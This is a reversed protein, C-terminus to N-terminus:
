ATLSEQTEKNDADLITLLQQALEKYSFTQIAYATNIEVRTERTLLDLIIDYAVDPVINIGLNNEELFSSFKGSESISIIPKRAPLYDFFKSIFAYTYYPILFLLLYDFQAFVKGLSKSNVPSFFTICTLENKKIIESIESNVTGLICFNIKSYLTINQKKLKVLANFFPIAYSNSDTVLSGAFLINVKGPKAYHEDVIYSEDFDDEDFGNHITFVKKNNVEKAIADTMEQAVTFILDANEIAKLEKKRENLFRKDSLHNFFGKGKQHIIWIDRYDLILKIHPFEKKLDSFKDMIHYPPCSIILHNISNKEILEKAVLYAKDNWWVAQDSYNANTKLKSLFFFAKLVIKSIFNNHISHAITEHKNSVSHIYINEHQTDETWVSTSNKHLANVVHITHGALALYKSLKAWRRGGTGPYPPYSYCILVINYNM